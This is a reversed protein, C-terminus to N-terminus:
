APHASLPKASEAEAHEARAVDLLALVQSPDGLLANLEDEDEIGLHARVWDALPVGDPTVQMNGEEEEAFPYPASQTVSM